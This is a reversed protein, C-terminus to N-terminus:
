EMPEWALPWSLPFGFGPIPEPIQSGNPFWPFVLFGNLGFKAPGNAQSPNSLGPEWFPWEPFQGAMTKTRPVALKLGPNVLEL